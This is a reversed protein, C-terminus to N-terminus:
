LWSGGNLWDDQSGADVTKPVEQKPKEEPQEQNQLFLNRVGLVDAAAMAYVETDLYHNAAHSTKLEWRTVTQGNGNRSSVKHEATVQEAYELDCGNYVMWSGRGNDKRMRSAIMDKYKGGDVLVLRMGYARSGTKNVSSIKYHNLMTSTGKCPLCWDNNQAAFDYVDDTQDGSDMLALDVIMPTGDSKRYELNMIKTIEAFSFAQGHTINQSTLYDGWARISYYLCNEQVDIGATLLKTWDPVIFEALETQRELVIEANTKLKTDEWPEALWSNTFNHLSEIDDKSLIFKKAIESFRTFPSYLTNLWFAVSRSCKANERVNQWRGRRLASAKQADSIVAGCNQCVYVALEARDAGSLGSEKGPWKIQSFKLEIFEGCHPCPIFFHKEIDAAEKAKWIQGTRVTPTSCKYIKRNSFTKTREEALSIPDAEKRSAAPYKDIEDMFLYRIPKSALGSPSESGTLSIYMNSFHLELKSSDRERFKSNLTPCAKIMPRLRIDSTSEALQGTPYVIMTPAPDQDICYGIMNHMAETGGVQTPKCFVIEETEWNTFEDMLGQLYPTVANKWLGPMNSSKEDLVRYRAAWESVSIDEPPTLFELCSGIYEPVTYRPFTYKKM